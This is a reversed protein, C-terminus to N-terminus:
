LGHDERKERRGSDRDRAEKVLGTLRLPSWSFPFSEKLGFGETLIMKERELRNKEALTKSLTASAAQRCKSM